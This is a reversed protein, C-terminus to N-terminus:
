IEGAGDSAHGQWTVQEISGRGNAYASPRGGTMGMGGVTAARDTRRLPMSVSASRSSVIKILSSEVARMRRM